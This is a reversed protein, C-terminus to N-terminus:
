QQQQTQCSNGKNLKYSEILADVEAEEEPTAWRIDLFVKDIIFPMEGSVFPKYANALNKLADDSM